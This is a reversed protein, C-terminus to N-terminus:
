PCREDSAAKQDAPQHSRADLFGAAESAQTPTEDVVRYLGEVSTMQALHSEVVQRPSLDILLKLSLLFLTLDDLQGLGLIWDPLLDVPMLIYAVTGLALLKLWTPVMPDRMLRWALRLTRFIGTLWEPSKTSAPKELRTM